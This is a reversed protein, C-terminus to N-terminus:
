YTSSNEGKYAKLINELYARYAKRIRAPGTVQVGDGLGALWGFFQPSVAVTVRASFLGEGASRMPVESGFRDIIVGALHNQCTLVVTEDEGGFMGFTKKTYRGMDLRDFTSQGERPEGTLSIRRMKDVRYHKIQEAERDYGIMYYNEDDWTLAWPSIVYWAGDRKLRLEKSITWEGYQFRIKVNESIALHIEDVNYYISENMTKIRDTVVVQRALQKAEYRSTLSELKRILQESKRATLFKSSQVADVLLKLEPLEFERSVVCYGSPQERRHIIDMGFNKLTEIDAYISKREAQIGYAELAELIEAMSIPHKEETRELLIQRLYLIKQKQNVGKAM